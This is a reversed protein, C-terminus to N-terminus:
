GNECFDIMTYILGIIAICLLIVLLILFLDPIIFLLLLALALVIFVGIAKVLIDPDIGLKELRGYLNEILTKM